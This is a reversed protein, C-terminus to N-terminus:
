IITLNCYKDDFELQTILEFKINVNKKFVDEYYKKTKLPDHGSIQNYVGDKTIINSDILYKIKKNYDKTEYYYVNDGKKFNDFGVLAIKNYKKTDLIYQLAMTGTNPDLDYSKFKELMTEKINEKILSHNKLYNAYAKNDKSNTNIINKICLKNHVNLDYREDFTGCNAFHYLINRDKILNEFFSNLVPFNCIAIDDFKDVFEKNCRLLSPGKGLIIISKSM